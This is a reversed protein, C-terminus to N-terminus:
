VYSEKTDEYSRRHSVRTDDYKDIKREKEKKKEEKYGKDQNKSKKSSKKDIVTDDFENGSESEGSWSDSRRLHEKSKEIKPSASHTSKSKSKKKGHEYQSAKGAYEDEEM